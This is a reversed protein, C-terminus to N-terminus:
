LLQFPCTLGMTLSLISLSETCIMDYWVTHVSKCGHSFSPRLKLLLIVKATLDCVAFSVVWNMTSTLFLSKPAIEGNRYPRCLRWWSAAAASSSPSNEACQTIRISLTERWCAAGFCVTSFILAFASGELGPPRLRSVEAARRRRGMGAGAFGLAAGVRLFPCCRGRLGEAVPWPGRSGWRRRAM